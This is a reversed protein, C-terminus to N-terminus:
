LSVGFLLYICLAQPLFSMSGDFGLANFKHKPVTGHERHM